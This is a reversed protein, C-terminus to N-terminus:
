SEELIDTIKGRIRGRALQAEIKVGPQIQNATRVVGQPGTVIAYGRELTAQPSVAQLARRAIDLRMRQQKLSQQWSIHLRRNLNELRLHYAELYRAPNLARLRTLLHDQRSTQERNLAIYARNLRQELEDVRQVLEQSQSRPHRLRKTLSKLLQRQYRLHQQFLLNLRQEFNLFRQYWEHSDPVAIEAAASPTPARRDAVFDAITFDIEHGVGCILPLPCHYIARALVEENFAWLDELSGGGRTLILLDCDQRQEAQAIAAAIKQAAEKGQVPVPYILVSTAPFRRNLVSLIDRIAAGSPSTIVGVRKPLIPLARKHEPAFLGEAALRQKLEEFVRRLAGDGAEELHEVILQFEGRAEYLGVQARALVQAGEKLTFGLLRNRNRFMACRVQAASDKLTFYFHGSAPQSLNSIEGEIWLLSFHSELVYRAERVLRSITYVDRAPQLNCFPNAM